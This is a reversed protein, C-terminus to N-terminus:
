EAGEYAGRVPQQPGRIRVQWGPRSCCWQTKLLTLSTKLLDLAAYLVTSTYHGTMDWWRRRTGDVAEGALCYLQQVVTPNRLCDKLAHQRYLVTHVDNRLGSLLAREAVEFLFEDGDAMAGLLTDLELGQILAREHPLLRERPDVKRDGYTPYYRLSQDPDLDQNRYMLLANM